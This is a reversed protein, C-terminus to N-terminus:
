PLAKVIELLQGAMHPDRTGLLKWLDIVAEFDRAKLASAMAGLILETDQAM